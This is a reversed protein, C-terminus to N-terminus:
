MRIASVQAMAAVVPLSERDVHRRSSSGHGHRAIVLGLKGVQEKAVQHLTIPSKPQGYCVAISRLQGHQTRKKHLAFWPNRCSTYWPEGSERLGSYTMLVWADGSSTRKM